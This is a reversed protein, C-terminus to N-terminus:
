IKPDANYADNKSEIYEFENISKYDFEESVIELKEDSILQPEASALDTEIIEFGINYAESLQSRNIESEDSVLLPIDEHQIVSTGERKKIRPRM